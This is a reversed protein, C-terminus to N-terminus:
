KILDLLFNVPCSSWPRLQGDNMQMKIGLKHWFHGIEEREESSNRLNERVQHAPHANLHIDGLRQQSTEFRIQLM